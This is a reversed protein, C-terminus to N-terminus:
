VFAIVLGTLWHTSDKWFPKSIFNKSANQNLPKCRKKGMKIISITYIHKLLSWLHVTLGSTNWTSRLNQLYDKWFWGECVQFRQNHANLLSIMIESHPEFPAQVYIETQFIVQCHSTLVSYRLETSQFESAQLYKLHNNSLSLQQSVPVISNCDATSNFIFEQM